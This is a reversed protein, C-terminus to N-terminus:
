NKLSKLDFGNSMINKLSNDEQHVVMLAEIGELSEILKMGEKEGMVILATALADADMCNKAIVSASAIHTMSEGSRPDIIHSVEQGDSIYYNRYDGSTAIAQDYLYVIGLFDHNINSPSQIGINWHFGKLNLGRCYVEGGIEVMYNVYQKENLYSALMDVGYGKAIANVDIQIKPTTKQLGSLHLTLHEYGSNRMADMLQGKSPPSNLGSPGFGWISTLPMVTIDFAGKTLDTWYLARKVVQYFQPSLQFPDNGEYRNFQNIESNDIYTSMQNNLEILISDIDKQFKERNIKKNAIVKISYTTGMTEGSFSIEKNSLSCGILGILIFFGSMLRAKKM